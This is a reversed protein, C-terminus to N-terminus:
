KRIVTGSKNEFAAIVADGKLGSAIVVELIGGELAEIAAYVKTIMGAGLDEVMGKAEALNMEQILKGRNLVGEVDTLLILKGAGSRYAINAALRDGDVNLSESKDGMALASLVPLYGNELLLKLLCTNVEEVQGTYGGDILMKRGRDDIIILRDKRKAQVLSGDLGSLGLAQLGVSQLTSVINKNIKGAMVMTYIKSTEEDTYRSRFGKPSTVFRPPHGLREAMETVIDGGGHVLIVNNKESLEKLELALRQPFGEKLLDGGIKVVILL